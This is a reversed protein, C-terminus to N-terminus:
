VPGLTTRGPRPSAPPTLLLILERHDRVIWKAEQLEEAPLTTCIGVTPCGAARAAKLGFPANEVVLCRELELSLREAALAFPQPGPKPRTVDDATVLVDFCRERQEDLLSRVSKLSSGTVVATKCGLKRLRLVLEWMGAFFARPGLAADYERRREVLRQIQSETFPLGSQTFLTELLQPTPQGERLYIERPAVEIGAERLVLEYARYYNVGSDVLVGDWDFIVADFAHRALFRVEVASESCSSPTKEGM